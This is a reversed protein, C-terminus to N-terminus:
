AKGALIFIQSQLFEGAHNWRSTIARTAAHSGHWQRAVVVFGCDCLLREVSRSTFFRLHTSDLIGAEQYRWDGKIILQYLLSLHRVNPVSLVLSGASSLLAHIRSLAAGPDVMHELVDALVVTDYVESAAEFGDFTCIWIRDYRQRALTAPGAMPEVGHLMQAGLARLQDADMGSACGVNLVAPGIRGATRQVFAMLESRESTYYEDTKAASYTM